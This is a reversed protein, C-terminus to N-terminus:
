SSPRSVITLLQRISQEKSPALRNVLETRPKTYPGKQPPFTIIDEVEAAFQHDLKSEMIFFKTRDNSIGALNFQAEAQGFWM